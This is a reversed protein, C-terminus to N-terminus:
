AQAAVAPTAETDAVPTADSEVSPASEAPAADTDDIAKQAEVLAEVAAKVSDGANRVEIDTVTEGNEVHLRFNM